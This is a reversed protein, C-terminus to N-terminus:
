SGGQLRETIVLVGEAYHCLVGGFIRYDIVRWSLPTRQEATAGCDFDARFINGVGDLLTNFSTETALGDNVGVFARLVVTHHLLAERNTLWVEEVASRSITWGHIVTVGLAPSDISTADFLSIMANWDGVHRQYAQINKAGSLALRTAVAESIAKYNSAEAM